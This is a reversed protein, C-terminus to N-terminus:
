DDRREAEPIRITCSLQFGNIYMTYRLYKGILTMMSQCTVCAYKNVRAPLRHFSEEMPFSVKKITTLAHHLIPALNRLSICASLYGPALNLMGLTRLPDSVSM